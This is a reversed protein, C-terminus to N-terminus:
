LVNISDIYTQSTVCERGEKQRWTIGLVYGRAQGGTDSGKKSNRNFDEAQSM